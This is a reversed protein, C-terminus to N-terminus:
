RSSFNKDAVVEPRVNASSGSRLAHELRDRTRARRVGHCRGESVVDDFDSRRVACAQLISGMLSAVVSLVLGPVVGGRQGCNIMPM